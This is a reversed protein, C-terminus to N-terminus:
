SPKTNTTDLIDDTFNRGHQRPGLINFFSSLLKKYDTKIESFHIEIPEISWIIERTRVIAQRRVYRFWHYGTWWHLFAYAPRMVPQPLREGGTRHWAMIRAPIYM